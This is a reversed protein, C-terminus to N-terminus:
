EEVLTVTDVIKKITAEDVYKLNFNMVIARRDKQNYLFAYMLDYKVVPKNNVNSNCKYKKKLVPCFYNDYIETELVDCMNRFFLEPIDDHQYDEERIYGSSAEKYDSYFWGAIGDQSFNLKKPASFEILHNKYTVWEETSSVGSSCATLLIIFIICMLIKKM